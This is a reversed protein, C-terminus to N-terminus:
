KNFRYFKNENLYVFGRIPEEVYGQSKLDNIMGDIKGYGYEFMSYISDKILKKPVLGFVHIHNHNTLIQFIQDFADQYIDDMESDVWVREIPGEYQFKWDNM